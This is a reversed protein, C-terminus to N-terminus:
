PEKNKVQHNWFVRKTVVWRRFRERRSVDKRGVVCVMVCSVTIITPLLVVLSCYIDPKM